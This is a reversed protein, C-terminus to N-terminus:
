VSHDPVQPRFKRQRFAHLCLLQNGPAKWRQKILEAPLVEIQELLQSPKVVRSKWQWQSSRVFVRISVVSASPRTKSGEYWHFPLRANTVPLLSFLVVALFAVVTPLTEDEGQPIRV